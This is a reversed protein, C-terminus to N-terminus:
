LPWTIGYAAFHLRWLARATGGEVGVLRWCPKRLAHLLAGFGGARPGSANMGEPCIWFFPKLPRAGREPGPEHLLRILHHRRM